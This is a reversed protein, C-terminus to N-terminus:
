GAALSPLERRFPVGDRKPEGLERAYRHGAYVAAAITGPAHCDGIRALTPAAAAGVEILRVLAHYLADDPRRMTVPVFTDCAIEIPRDTFNCVATVTDAGIESVSHLPVIRVDLEILRKQIREQELTNHTFHSVDAAPTVLTVECGSSRLKEAILGGMYYHEDDFIVVPGSPSHGAMIADPTVVKAGDARPISAHIARGMGSDCWHAGTAVVVHDAGFELVQEATLRSDLFTEVNAMQGIQYARYDTVRKWEMLGPLSTAERLVRGGLATGGEALTVEYGRQGM